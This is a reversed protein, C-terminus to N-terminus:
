RVHVKLIYCVVGQQATRYQVCTLGDMRLWTIYYM